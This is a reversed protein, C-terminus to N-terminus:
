VHLLDLLPFIRRSQNPTAIVPAAKKRRGPACWAPAPAEKAAEAFARDFGHGSVGPFKLKLTEKPIPNGPDARMVEVLAAKCRVEDAITSAAELASPKPRPWFRYVDVAVILVDRYVASRGRQFSILDVQGIRMWTLDSWEVAPIAVRKTAGPKIGTAHAQGCALRHWLETQAKHWPAEQWLARGWFKHSRWLKFAEEVDRTLIWAAALTFPWASKEAPNPEAGVPRVFPRHGHTKAWDEAQDPTLEGRHVREKVDVVSAKPSAPDLRNIESM